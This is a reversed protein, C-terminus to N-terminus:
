QAPRPPPCDNTPSYIVILMALDSPAMAETTPFGAFALGECRGDPLPRHFSVANAVGGSSAWGRTQASTAYARTIEDAKALPAGVCQFPKGSAALRDQLFLCDPMLTSGQILPLDVMGPLVVDTPGAAIMMAALAAIM